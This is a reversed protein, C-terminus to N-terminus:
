NARLIINGWDQTSILSIGFKRLRYAVEPHPHNYKKKRASAIALRTRTLRHLLKQSTSTRSGHHGLILTKTFPSVRNRWFKEQSMPSDGPLLIKQQTHYYVFSQENQTKGSALTWLARTRSDHQQCAKVLFRSHIKRPMPPARVLCLEAVQRQFQAVFRYHDFDWHSLYLLNKKKQCLIRARHLPAIEGGMDYHVCTNTTVQTVWLGQGVNWIVMSDPEPEGSISQPVLLVFILFLALFPM